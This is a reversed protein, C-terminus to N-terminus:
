GVEQIETSIHFPDTMNVKLARVHPPEWGPPTGKVITEYATDGDPGPVTVMIHGFSKKGREFGYLKMNVPIGVSMAMAGLLTSHDDCDAGKAANALTNRPSQFRESRWPDKTYRINQQVWGQLASMIAPTDRGDLGADAIISTARDRVLPDTAGQYAASALQEGFWSYLADGEAGPPANRYLISGKPILETGEWPTGRLTLLGAIDTLLVGSAFGGTFWAALRWTDARASWRSHAMRYFTGSAFSFPIFTNWVLIKSGPPEKLFDRRFKEEALSSASGAAAGAAAVAM